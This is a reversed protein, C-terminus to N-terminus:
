SATVMVTQANHRDPCEPLDPILVGHRGQLRLLSEGRRLPPVFSGVSDADIDLTQSGHGHHRDQNVVQPRMSQLAAIHADVDEEDKRPEQDGRVQQPVRGGPGAVDDLEPATPDTAKQRGRGNNEQGGQRGAQHPQGLAQQRAHGSVGSSRGQVGLVPNQRRSRGVVHPRLVGGARQLVVPRERDLLLEIHDPRQEDAGQEKNAPFDAPEPSSLPRDEGEAQAGQEEGRQTPRHVLM